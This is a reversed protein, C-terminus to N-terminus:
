RYRDSLEPPTRDRKATRASRLRNRNVIRPRPPLRNNSRLACRNVGFPCRGGVAVSGMRGHRIEFVQLLLGFLIQTPMAFPVIRDCGLDPCAQRSKTPKAVRLYQLGVELKSVCLLKNRAAMQRAPALTETDAM